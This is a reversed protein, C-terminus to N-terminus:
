EDNAPPTTVPEGELLPSKPNRARLERIYQNALEEGQAESSGLARIAEAMGKLAREYETSHSGYLALTTGFAERAQVADGNALAIMALGNNAGAQALSSDKHQDRLREFASRAGSSDGGELMAFASALRYRMARKPEEASVASALERYDAAAARHDGAREQLEARVRMAELRYRPAIDKRDAKQIAQELTEIAKALDEDGAYARALGVLADGMLRSPPDLELVAEYHEIADAMEQPNRAARERHCEALYYNCYQKVWWYRVSPYEDDRLNAEEDLVAALTEDFFRRADYWSGRRYYGLARTYADPADHYEIFEIDHSSDTRTRTTGEPAYTVEKATESKVTVNKKPSKGSEPRYIITDAQAPALFFALALLSLTIPAHKTHM